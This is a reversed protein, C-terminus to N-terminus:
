FPCLPILLQYKYYRQLFPLTTGVNCILFWLSLPFFHSPQPGLCGTASIADQGLERSCKGQPLRVIIFTRRSDWPFKSDYCPCELIRSRSPPPFLELSPVLLEPDVRGGFRSHSGPCIVRETEVGRRMQSIFSKFGGASGRETRMMQLCPTWKNLNISKYIVYIIYLAMRKTFICVFYFWRSYFTATGKYDAM